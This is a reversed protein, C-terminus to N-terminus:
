RKKNSKEKEIGLIEDRFEKFKKGQLPKTNMEAVMDETPLYRIVMNGKEVQDTVFFYRINMARTRKGNSIKGNRELRIASQNDQHLVNELVQYGQAEVFSKTWMIKDMLDDVAM